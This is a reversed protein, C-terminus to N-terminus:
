KIASTPGEDISAAEIVPPTGPGTRNALDASAPKGTAVRLVYCATGGNVFFGYVATALFGTPAEDIFGGFIEVFADWSQILTPITPGQKAVGIFGATSTGVGEIPAGPAFEDIYVGPYSVQVAM